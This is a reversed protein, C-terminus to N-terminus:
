LETPYRHLRRCKRQQYATEQSLEAGGHSAAAVVCQKEVIAKAHAISANDIVQMAEIFVDAVHQPKSPATAKCIVALAVGGKQVTFDPCRDVSCRAVTAVKAESSVVSADGVNDAVIRFSGQQQAGRTNQPFRLLVLARDVPQKRVLLNYFPSHSVDALQAAVM